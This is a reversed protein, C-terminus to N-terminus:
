LRPAAGPRRVKKGDRGVPARSSAFEDRSVAKGTARDRYVTEANRGAAAVRCRPRWAVWRM